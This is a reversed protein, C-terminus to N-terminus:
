DAIIDEFWFFHERIEEELIEQKSLDIHNAYCHCGIALFLYEKSCGNIDLNHQISTPIPIARVHEGDDLSLLIAQGLLDDLLMIPSIDLEPILLKATVTITLEQQPMEVLPLEAQPLEAQPLEAQPLEVQLLEAQPLEAQSLEAQPLEQKLIM